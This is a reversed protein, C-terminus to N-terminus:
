IYLCLYILAYITSYILGFQIFNMGEEPTTFTCKEEDGEVDNVVVAKVGVTYFTAPTTNKLSYETTPADVSASDNDTLDDDWLVDGTWTILYKTIDCDSM